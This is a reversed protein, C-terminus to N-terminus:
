HRDSNIVRPRGRPKTLIDRGLILELNIIAEQPGVVLGRLTNERIQKIQEEDDYQSIFDRWNIDGVYSSCDSLTIIKYETGLHARASSWSYDWPQAVMGARVPNREVYRLAHSIHDGYLLCSYFREQWLHGQVERKKHLYYAYRQHCRCMTEALSHAHLPKVIFHVHNDMLCFAFLELGYKNKYEEFLKLYHVRDFDDEFICQKYNGRQTVHFLEGTVIIRGQRPM